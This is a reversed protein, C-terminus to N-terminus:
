FSFCLNVGIKPSHLLDDHFIKPQARISLNDDVNYDFLHADVNADVVVMLYSIVVAIIAYDRYKRYVDKRNTLYQEVPYTPPFNLSEHSNTYIDGDKFDIYARRYKQYKNQYNILFYTSGGILAWALPVKWYKRNYIQGLGPLAASMITAKAPIVKRAQLTDVPYIKESFSTDEVTIMEPETLQIVTLTDKVHETQGKVSLHFLLFCAVLFVKEGM